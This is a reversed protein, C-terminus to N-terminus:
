LVGQLTSWRQKRSGFSTRELTGVEGTAKTLYKLIETDRYYRRFCENKRSDLHAIGRLKKDRPGVSIVWGKSDMYDVKSLLYIVVDGDEGLGLTPHATLLRRLSMTANEPDTSLRPLPLLLESHRPNDVIIDTVDVKCDKDRHWDKGSAIPVTMKWIAANWYPSVDFDYEEKDDDNDSYDSNNDVSQRSPPLDEGPRIGM